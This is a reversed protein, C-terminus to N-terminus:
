GINDETPQAAVGLGEKCEDFRGPESREWPQLKCSKPLRSGRTDIDNRDREPEKDGEDRM